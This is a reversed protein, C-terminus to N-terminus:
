VIQSQRGSPLGASLQIQVAPVSGYRRRIIKKRHSAKTEKRFGTKTKSVKENQNTKLNTILNSVFM